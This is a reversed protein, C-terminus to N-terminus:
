SIKGFISKELMERDPRTLLGTHERAIIRNIEGKEYLRKYLSSGGHPNIKYAGKCHRVLCPM